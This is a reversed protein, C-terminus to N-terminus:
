DTLTFEYVYGEVIWNSNANIILKGNVIRLDLTIEDGPSGVIYITQRNLFQNSMVPTFAKDRAAVSHLSNILERRSFLPRNIDSGSPGLSIHVDPAVPRALLEEVGKRIEEIKESQRRPTLDDTEM